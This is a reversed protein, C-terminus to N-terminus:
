NPSPRSIVIPPPSRMLKPSNASAAAAMQEATSASPDLNEIPIRDSSPLQQASTVALHAISEGLDLSDMAATASHVDPSSSSDGSVNRKLAAMKSHVQDKVWDRFDKKPERKVSPDNVLRRVFKPSPSASRM